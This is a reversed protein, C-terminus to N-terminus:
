TQGGPFSVHRFMFYEGHIKGFRRNSTSREYLCNFQVNLLMSLACEYVYGLMTKYTANQKCLINIKTERYCILILNM